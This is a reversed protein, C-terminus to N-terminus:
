RNRSPRKQQAGRKPKAAPQPRKPATEPRRVLRYTTGAPQWCLQDYVAAGRLTDSATPLYIRHQQGTQRDYGVALGAGPNGNSPYYGIALQRHDPAWGVYWPTLPLSDARVPPRPLRTYTAPQRLDFFRYTPDAELRVTDPVSMLLGLSDATLDLSPDTTPVLPNDPDCLGLYQLRPRGAAVDLAYLQYWLVARPSGKGVYSALLLRQHPLARFWVFAPLQGGALPRGQYSLTHTVIEERAGWLAQSWTGQTHLVFPPHAEQRDVTGSQTCGMLAALALSLWLAIRM